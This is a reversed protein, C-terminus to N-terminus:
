SPPGYVLPCLVCGDGSGEGAPSLLSRSITLDVESLPYFASISEPSASALILIGGGGRKEEFERVM